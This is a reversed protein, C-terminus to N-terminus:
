RRIADRIREPDATRLLDSMEAIAYDLAKMNREYENVVKVRDSARMICRRARDRDRATTERMVKLRDIAEQQRM